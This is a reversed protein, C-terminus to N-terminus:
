KINRRIAALQDALLGFSFVLLSSIFLVVTIDAIDLPPFIIDYAGSFFGWLLFFFSIPLFVKLPSFLVITRLILLFMKFADKPKVTSKGTRKNVEIPVYKVNLGEKQFILSMTTYMSFSNPFLHMFRLLLEKKILRMGCNLDPIKQDSLYNALFHLIKKGPQRIFPGKYGKIRAGAIVEYKDTYRLFKEIYRPQHQGDADFFLVHNYFANRIGTKLAAGNGKNYPHNILKINKTKKLIKNTTDTPGDNVVIIEAQYNKENLYTKLEELVNKVAKEENYVPIIISFKFNQSNSNSM